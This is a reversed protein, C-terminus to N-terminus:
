LVALAVAVAQIAGLWTYSVARLGASYDLVVEPLPVLKKEDPYELLIGCGVREGTISHLVVAHNLHDEYSYGDDVRAQGLSEGKANSDWNSNWPDVTGPKFYHGLVQSANSCTTGAHIHLGGSSNAPLGAFNWSVLLDRDSEKKLKFMGSVGITGTYGPYIMMAAKLQGMTSTGFGFGLWM